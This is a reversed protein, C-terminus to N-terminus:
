FMGFIFFIFNYREFHSCECSVTCNHAVDASSTCLFASNTRSTWCDLALSVKSDNDLLLSKLDDTAIDAHQTLQSRIVKRSPCRAFTNGDIPILKILRQLYENEGQQFSVNGSIFFKLILETISNQNTLTGDKSPATSFKNMPGHQTIKKCSEKAHKSLSAPSGKLRPHNFQVGCRKCICRPQGTIRNVGEHFSQWFDALERGSEFSWHFKGDVQIILLM